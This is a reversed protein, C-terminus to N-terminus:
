FLHGCHLETAVRFHNLRPMTWWLLSREYSSCFKDPLRVKVFKIAKSVNACKECMWLCTILSLISVFFFVGLPKTQTFMLNPIIYLSGTMITFYVRVPHHLVGASLLRSKYWGSPIEKAIVVLESNIIRSIVGSSVLSILLKVCFM